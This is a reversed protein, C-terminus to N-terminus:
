HSNSAIPAAPADGTKIEMLEAVVTGVSVKTDMRVPIKMENDTFYIDMNGTRNFIGETKMMPRVVITDFTGAPTKITEKRLFLVEVEYFKRTDYVKIFESKGFVLHRDRLIYISTLPDVYSQSSYNTNEIQAKPYDIYEITKALFDQSMVRHPEFIVERNRRYGGEKLNLRYTL